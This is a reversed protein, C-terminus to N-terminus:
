LKKLCLKSLLFDGIIEKAFSLPFIAIAKELSKLAHGIAM